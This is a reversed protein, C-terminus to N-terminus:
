QITCESKKGGINKDPLRRVVTVVRWRMWKRRHMHAYTCAYICICLWVGRMRSITRGSFSDGSSQVQQCMIIPVQWRGRYKSIRWRAFKEFINVNEWPFHFKRCTSILHVYNRLLKVVSGLALMQLRSSVRSPMPPRSQVHLRIRAAYRSHTAAWPVAPAPPPGWQSM